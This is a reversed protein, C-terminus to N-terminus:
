SSNILLHLNVNIMKIQNSQTIKPLCQFGNKTNGQKSFGQMSVSDNGCANKTTSTLLEKQLIDIIMRALELEELAEKLQTKHM